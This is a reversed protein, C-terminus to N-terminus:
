HFKPLFFYEQPEKAGGIRWIETGTVEREEGLEFVVQFPAMKTSQIIDLLAYGVLQFNNWCFGELVAIFM